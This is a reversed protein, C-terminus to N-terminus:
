VADPNLPLSLEVMFTNDKTEINMNYLDGYILDLRRQVNKIGIGSGKKQTAGDKPIRNLCLFQLTDREVVIKVSIMSEETYSVGYKFANEIFSIFLLPPITIGRDDAPFSASIKVSEPYRIRMLEIFNQMFEVEKSLEVQQINNEYLLYRMMKSLQQITKYAANTDSEILSQINNLTNMLFHPSIQYKLSQLEQLMKENQINLVLMEQRMSQIYLKIGFNAFIVCLEIVLNTLHFMDFLGHPRPMPMPPLDHAFMDQMPPMEVELHKPRPPEQILWLLVFLGVIVVCYWIKKDKWFLKPLLVFNNILFLLFIPVLAQYGMVVHKWQVANYEGSHIDIIQSVIPICFVITWCVIYITNELRSYKDVKSFLSSQRVM